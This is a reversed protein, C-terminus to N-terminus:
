LDSFHVFPTNMLERFYHAFHKVKTCIGKRQAYLGFSKILNMIHAMAGLSYLIM